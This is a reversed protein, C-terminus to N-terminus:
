EPHPRVIVLAAISPVATLCLLVIASSGVALMLFSGTLEGAVLLAAASALLVLAARALDKARIRRRKAMANMGVLALPTLYVLGILSSAVLGAIVIAFEPTWSLMRYTSASVSLAGLLPYLMVRVPGRLLDNNAILRAVSPSFSYYWANFVEMFASGARTSLVLHDRFNRLFQVAPSAESGFTATAIICPPPPPMWTTTTTQVISTTSTTASTVTSTPTTTATSTTETTSITTSTTTSITTSTTTSTTTTSTATVGSIPGFRLILGAQGVAWGDQSAVMWVAKLDDNGSGARPQTPIPYVRTWTLGDWFLLIPATGDDIGVAWGENSSVMYLSTLNQTSSLGSPVNHWGTADRHIITSSNGVAWVNTSTLAQVDNLQVSVGSTETACAPGAGTCHVVTGASGVAWGETSSSWWTANLANTTGSPISGWISGDWKLMTGGGGVAFALNTSITFVGTLNINNAIGPPSVATWAPGGIWRVIVPLGAGAGDPDNGVAWIQSSSSGHIANLRTAVPSTQYYNWAVGNWHLINGVDGVAWGDATSALWVGRLSNPAAIPSTLANWVSGNWRVVTGGDGVAFGDTASLMYVANLNVTSPVNSILLTYGTAGRRALTSATAGATAVIWGESASLLSIGHWDEGAAVAGGDVSWNPGGSWTLRTDGAGVAFASTGSIMKVGYLANGTGSPRTTWTGPAGVLDLSYTVGSEGVAFGFSPGAGPPLLHVSRFEAPVGLNVEGAIVFPLPSVILRIINYGGVGLSAGVAYGLGDSRIWISHLDGVGAPLWMTQNTWGVGDWYYIRPGPGVAWCNTASFCSVSELNSTTPTAIQEWKAGDWRVIVGSDGVAWGSSSSIMWVSNLNAFVPNISRWQGPQAVAPQLLTVGAALLVLM